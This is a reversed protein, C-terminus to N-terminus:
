KTKYFILLGSERPDDGHWPGELKRGDASPTLKLYAKRNMPLVLIEAEISGGETIKGTGYKNQGRDSIEYIDFSDQGRCIFNYLKRSTASLWEGCVQKQRSVIDSPSSVVPQTSNRPSDPTSSQSAETGNYQKTRPDSSPSFATRTPSQRVPALIQSLTTGSRWASVVGAGAGVITVLLALEAYFERKTWGSRLTRWKIINMELTTLAARGNVARSNASLCM